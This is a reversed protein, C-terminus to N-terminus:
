RKLNLVKNKAISIDKMIDLCYLMKGELRLEEEMLSRKEEEDYKKLDNDIMSQNHKKFDVIYDDMNDSVNMSDSIIKRMTDSSNDKNDIFGREGAIYRIVSLEWMDKYRNPIYKGQGIKAIDISMELDIFSPDITWLKSYRAEEKLRELIARNVEYRNLCKDQEYSIIDNRDNKYYFYNRYNHSPDIEPYCIDIIEVGKVQDM